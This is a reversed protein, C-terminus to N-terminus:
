YTGESRNDKLDCNFHNCMMKYCLDSAVDRDVTPPLPSKIYAEDVLNFLRQAEKKVQDLTWKGTKIDILEPADKRQIKLNGDVLFEFCMRVLRILHSANKTDYGFKKVLEKRKAGLDRTSGLNEMRHMQGRAYGMFSHYVEKTAFLDRNDILMQGADSVKLYLNQPLWLFSLVNPNGKILLKM